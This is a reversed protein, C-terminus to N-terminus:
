PVIEYRAETGTSKNYLENVREALKKINVFIMEGDVATRYSEWLRLEKNKISALEDKLTAIIGKYDPVDERVLNILIYRNDGIRRLKKVPSEEKKPIKDDDNYGTEKEFWIKNSKKYAEVVEKEIGSCFRKARLVIRANEENLLSYDRQPIQITKPYEEDKKKRPWDVQMWSSKSTYEDIRKEIENLVEDVSICYGIGNFQRLTKSEMTKARSDDARIEIFTQLKNYIEKWRSDSRSRPTKKIVFDGFEFEDKRSKKVAEEFPEIAVAEAIKALSPQQLYLSFMEETLMEVVEIPKYSLVIEEIAM